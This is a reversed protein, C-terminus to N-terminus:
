FDVGLDNLAKRKENVLAASSCSSEQFLQPGFRSFCELQLLHWEQRLSDTQVVATGDSAFEELLQFRSRIQTASDLVEVGRKHCECPTAYERTRRTFLYSQATGESGTGSPSDMAVMGGSGDPVLRLDHKLVKGAEVRITDSVPRYGQRVSSVIYEGATLNEFAYRGGNRSIVVSATGLLYVPAGVIPASSSSDVVVGSVGGPQAFSASVCLFVIGLVSLVTRSAHWRHFARGHTKGAAM